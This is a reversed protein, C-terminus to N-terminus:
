LPPGPAFGCNMVANLVSRIPVSGDGDVADAVLDDQLFSQLGGHLLLFRGTAHLKEGHRGPVFEADGFFLLDRM